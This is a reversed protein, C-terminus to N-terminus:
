STPNKIFILNIESFSERLRLCELSSIIKNILEKKEKKLNFEVRTM